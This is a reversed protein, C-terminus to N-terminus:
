LAKLKRIRMKVSSRCFCIAFPCKLDERRHFIFIPMGKFKGLNKDELFNPHDEGPFYHIALDPQGSLM